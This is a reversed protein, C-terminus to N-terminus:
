VIDDLSPVAANCLMSNWCLLSFWTVCVAVIVIIHVYWYWYALIVQHKKTYRSGGTEPIATNTLSKSEGEENITTYSKMMTVAKITRKWKTHLIIASHSPLTWYARPFSDATRWPHWFGCACRTCGVLWFQSSVPQSNLLTDLMGATWESTNCKRTGPM